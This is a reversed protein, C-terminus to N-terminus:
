SAGALHTKLEVPTQEDTLRLLCFHAPQGIEMEHRLNMLRAPQTSFYKWTEQWDRSLMHAARFVGDVPRLASGAFNTKGPQRVIQDAGVEVTVAGITYRGPPAGAAAMADTTYYLNPLTRHFLRFPAPSVHVADPIISALLEPNEFVRWLINDHRDLERPCGNGLHTFGTAGIAVAQHIIDASADTHGLSIKLGLSVALLIAALAGKREPALTLLLADSGTIERLERIMEPTPDLMYAPNHAGHFGPKESLFPGEIHWGPIAATLEPSADRIKKLHRLRATLKSWDDTILTLLFLPCGDRRLAHTARLLDAETLNDQQFDVGGYGNIQLDFLGPAIWRDRPSDAPGKELAVIRGNEWRVRVPKRSAYHLGTFEGHSM